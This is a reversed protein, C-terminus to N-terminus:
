IPDFFIQVKGAGANFCTAFGPHNMIYEQNYTSFHLEKPYRSGNFLQQHTNTLRPLYIKEIGATRFNTQLGITELVPFNIIGVCINQSGPYWTTPFLEAFNDAGPMSSLVPFDFVIPYNTNAPMNNFIQYFAGNGTLQTLSDFSLHSIKTNNFAGRFTDNIGITSLGSFDVSSLNTCGSFAYYLQDQQRTIVKLGSFDVSSLSTCNECMRELVNSTSSLDELGSFDLHKLNRNNKYRSAFVKNSGIHRIM